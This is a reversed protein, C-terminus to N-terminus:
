LKEEVEKIEAKRKFQAHLQRELELGVIAEVRQETTRRGTKKKAPGSGSGVLSQRLSVAM